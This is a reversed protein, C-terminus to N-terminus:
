AREMVSQSFCAISGASITDATVTPVMPFAPECDFTWGVFNTPFSVTPRPNGTLGM